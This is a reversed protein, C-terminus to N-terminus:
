AQAGLLLTGVGPLLVRSWLCRWGVSDLLALQPGSLVGRPGFTDLLFHTGSSDFSGFWASAIGFHSEPIPLNM